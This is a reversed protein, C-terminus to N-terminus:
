RGTAFAPVRAMRPVTSQTPVAQPTQALYPLRFLVGTLLWFYANMVFNQYPAMGGYSLPVLLLFMYWFISFGIPFYVTARLQLVVKWAYYLLVTTWLLWFVLGLIGMEVILTGWGNEVGIDTTVAKDSILRTIYQGGLSATGTGYGIPWRPHDFAEMLNMWPYDVVRHRLEFASSTPDLTERYFSWNAGISAPFLEVMLLLGAAGVFLARRLAKVLVRGQGWKWPAGWLFGASLFLVSVVTYIISGRSASQMAGVVAVGIGLFGYAARRRRTLLLYGQGGMAVITVLIMYASFRGASVFVSTPAPTELHSLPSTRTLNGLAQLEPALTTPNLFSLGVISQVVGLFAIILGLSISFILFRELDQGNRLLAYGVYMLPVYYFYLKLGLLGYLPSPSATNFVQMLALAFFLGLPVLFPAKFWPVRGRRKAAILSLYTIGALVDKGFFLVTGNGVFKRLLDEFLLWGIFLLFGSRWDKLIAVTVIVMGVAMGGLVLNQTSGTLIWVSLEWAMGALCLFFLLGRLQKSETVTRITDNM